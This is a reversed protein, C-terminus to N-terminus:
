AAGAATRLSAPAYRGRHEALRWLSAEQEATQVYGAQIRRVRGLASAPEHGSWVLYGALVTGTRGLGGRCHVVVSGGQAIREGIAACLRQFEGAEPAVLDATPFWRPTLGHAEILADPVARYEELCVLDTVGLAALSRLDFAVDELSGPRAMGGLSREIVWRFGLPATPL